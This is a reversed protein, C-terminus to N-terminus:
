RFLERSIKVLHIDFRLWAVDIESYTKAFQPDQSGNPCLFFGLGENPEDPGAFQIVAAIGKHDKMIVKEKTAKVM